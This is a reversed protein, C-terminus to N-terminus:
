PEARMARLRQIAQQERAKQAARRRKEKKRRVELHAPCLAAGRETPTECWTCVGRERREQLKRTRAENDKTRDADPGLKRM